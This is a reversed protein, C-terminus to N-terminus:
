LPWRSRSFNRLDVGVDLQRTLPKTRAFDGLDWVEDQAAAVSNSPRTPGDAARRDVEVSPSRRDLSSMPQRRDFGTL